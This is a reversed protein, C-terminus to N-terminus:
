HKGPGADPLLLAESVQFTAQPRLTDPPQLENLHVSRHVRRAFFSVTEIDLTQTRKHYELRHVYPGTFWHLLGTGQWLGISPGMSSGM